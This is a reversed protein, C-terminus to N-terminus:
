AGAWFGAHAAAAEDELAPGLVAVGDEPTLLRNSGIRHIPANPRNDFFALLGEVSLAFVVTGIGAWFIAGSCMACPECSSYLTHGALEAPSWIASARRVLNTEAHATVDGDTAVTNEAEAVVRGDQDVLIAGFPHNGHERAAQSVEIARRLHAEDQQNM